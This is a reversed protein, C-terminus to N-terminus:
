QPVSNHTFRSLMHHLRGSVAEPAAVHASTATWSWRVCWELKMTSITHTPHTSRHLLATLTRLVIQARYRAAAAASRGPAALHSPRMAGKGPAHQVPQEFFRPELNLGNGTGRRAGHISSHYIMRRSSARWSILPSTRLSTISHGAALCDTSRAANCRASV